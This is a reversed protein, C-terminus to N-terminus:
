LSLIYASNIRFHELNEVNDPNEGIPRRVPIREFADIRDSDAHSIMLASRSQELAQIAASDSGCHEVSLMEVGMAQFRQLNPIPLGEGCFQNSLVVGDIAQIFTRIPEGMDTIADEPIMAGAPRKAEALIFERVDWRLLEFGPRATLIFSPDRGRAYVSLEEITERMRDRYNPVLALPTMGEAMPDSLILDDEEQAAVPFPDTMLGVSLCFAVFYFATRTM